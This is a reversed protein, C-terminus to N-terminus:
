NTFVILRGNIKIESFGIEDRIWKLNEESYLLVHTPDDKYYWKSFETDESLLHTKCYLKGRSKLLNKLLKFEKEPHHFHEIVECCVIFDYVDSLPATNPYFFPDYLAIDYGKESLLKAIVPGTGAGFDLGKTGTRFDNTVAYVIPSVFQQYAPDNVDNNHTLYREKEETLVLFSNPDRYVSNCQPCKFFTHQSDKYFLTTNTSKCLLCACM